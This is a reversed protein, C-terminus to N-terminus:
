FYYLFGHSKYVNGSVTNVGFKKNGTTEDRKPKEFREEQDFGKRSEEDRYSRYFM